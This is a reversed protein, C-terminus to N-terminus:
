PTAEHLSKALTMARKAMAQPARSIFEEALEALDHLRAHEGRRASRILAQESGHTRCSQAIAALEAGATRALEARQECHQAYGIKEAIQKETLDVLLVMGTGKGGLNVLLTREGGIEGKFDAHTHKYILNLKQERNM